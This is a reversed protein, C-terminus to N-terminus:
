IKKSLEIYERAIEKWTHVFNMMEVKKVQEKYVSEKSLALIAEKISNVSLPDAFIGASRVRNEIGNEKTLIFPKNLSIADLIMNPSIDGLSVLIVAYSRKIKEIFQPYPVTETDLFISNDEKKAETFAEKLTDINKWVLNRTGAVFIKKGAPFSERKPSYFNEIIYNKDKNLEYPAAFLDRQWSTSWVVADANRLVYRISRFILKEKVTLNPLEASYFNKLLIKKKTREVYEEWLFDGGTRVIIKKRIIKAALVAPFGVSFTDLSLIFEAGRGYLLTRLFFYFHRVGSPLRRELEYTLVKVEYGSAKFERELNVAYQAPGGIAPPYIGTVILIKPEYAMLVMM